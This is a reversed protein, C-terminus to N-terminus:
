ANTPQDSKAEPKSQEPKPTETVTEPAPASTTKALKQFVFIRRDSFTQSREDAPPTLVELLKFTLETQLYDNFQDPKFSINKFQQLSEQTQVAKKRTHRTLSRSLCFCDAMTLCNGRRRSHKKKVGDDGWNLHIWKTMSLCLIVDFKKTEFDYDLFNGSLFEVNKPFIPSLPGYAQPCSVPYEAILEGVLQNVKKQKADLSDQARKVLSADIDIGTIKKPAFKRAIDFTVKGINCGIDLCLKDKLMPQKLVSVRGDCGAVIVQRYGYYRDYNGYPFIDRKTKSSSAVDGDERKRKRVEDIEMEVNIDFPLARIRCLLKQVSFSCFSFAKQKMFHRLM